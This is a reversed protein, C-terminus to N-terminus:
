RGPAACRLYTLGSLILGAGSLAVPWARGRGRGSRALLSTRNIAPCNRMRVTADFQATSFCGPHRRSCRQNKKGHGSGKERKGSSAIPVALNSPFAAKGGQLHHLHVLRDSENWRAQKEERGRGARRPANRQLFTPRRTSRRLPPPPAPLPRPYAVRHVAGREPQMRDLPSSLVAWSLPAVLSASQEVARQGARGQGAGSGRRSGGTGAHWALRCAGKNVVIARTM